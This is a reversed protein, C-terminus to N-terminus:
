NWYIRLSKSLELNTQLCLLAMKYLCMGINLEETDDIIMITSENVLTSVFMVILSRKLQCDEPFDTQTVRKCIGPLVEMKNARTALLTFL